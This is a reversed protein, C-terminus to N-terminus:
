GAYKKVIRKVGPLYGSGFMNLHNLLQYLDYLEKRDEYGPQMMGTEKYAEYFAPPFGGFLETMAIDIEPHGYYVAPDILWGKGDNGTIMNGSWLDGHVLSPREPEALFRDLHSLLYEIRKRDEASFYRAAADFQPVLRCDRFFPIWKSHPTNSQRRSGIWNDEFFGYEGTRYSESTEHEGTGRKESGGYEGTGSVEASHMAALEAAFTEWFSRVRRGGIIYEMLLFSIGEDTGAGLVEPVGIAGMRRIENLGAAEARFNPLSSVANSKMFVFSGDDLTLVCAENIDGGSVYSRKEVYRSEGFLDKVAGSLSGYEKIKKM